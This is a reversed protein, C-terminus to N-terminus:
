PRNRPRLHIGNRQLTNCISDGLAHTGSLFMAFLAVAIPGIIFMGLLVPCGPDKESM